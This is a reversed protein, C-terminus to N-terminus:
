QHLASIIIVLMNVTVQTQDVNQKLSGDPTWSKTLLTYHSYWPSCRYLTLVSGEQQEAGGGGGGGSSCPFRRMPMCATVQLQPAGAGERLPSAGRERREGEKEEDTEQARGRAGRVCSDCYRSPALAPPSRLLPLARSIHWKLLLLNWFLATSLGRVLLHQILRLIQPRDTTHM